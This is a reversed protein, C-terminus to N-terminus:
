PSQPLAHRCVCESRLWLVTPRPLHFNSSTQPSRKALSGAPMLQLEAGGVIEVDRPVCKWRRIKAAREDRSGRREFVLWRRVIRRIQPVSDHFACVIRPSNVRAWVSSTPLATIRVSPL